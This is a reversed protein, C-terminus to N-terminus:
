GPSAWTGWSGRRRSRTSSSSGTATARASPKPWDVLYQGAYGDPPLDVDRGYQQAYRAYLSQYFRDMQSGSDNFYYERVVDYGAASLVNALASGIVAGRAHGVHLPGTPNVSVFEVQVRQGVGTETAGYSEGAELIADVQRRLWDDALTFNIFGPRAVEVQALAGGLPILPVLREAIELPPMQMARALKLPMSTAYDGHEPNSPREVLKEPLPATPLLGQGQARELAGTVLDAIEDRLIM